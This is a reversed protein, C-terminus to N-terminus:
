YRRLAAASAGVLATCSAGGVDCAAKRGCANPTGTAPASVALRDLSKVCKTRHGVHDLGPPASGRLTASSVAFRHPAVRRAHRLASPGTSVATQRHRGLRPKTFDDTSLAPFSTACAKVRRLRLCIEAREDSRKEVVYLFKASSLSHSIQVDRRTCFVNGLSSHLILHKCNWQTAAMSPLPVM